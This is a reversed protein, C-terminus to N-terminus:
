KLGLMVTIEPFMLTCSVYSSKKKKKLGRICQNSVPVIALVTHAETNRLLIDIFSIVQLTKGLGM